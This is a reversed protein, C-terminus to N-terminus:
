VRQDDGIESFYATVGDYGETALREWVRERDENWHM